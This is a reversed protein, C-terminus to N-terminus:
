EKKKPKLILTQLSLNDGDLCQLMIAKAADQYSVASKEKFNETRISCPVLCCVRINHESLIDNMRESFRIIAAKRGGYVGSARSPFGTLGGISAINVITGSKRSIFHELIAKTTYVAFRYTSNIDTELEEADM